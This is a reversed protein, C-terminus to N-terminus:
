LLTTSPCPGTANQCNSSAFKIRSLAPLEDPVKTPRAEAPSKLSVLLVPAAALKEPPNALVSKCSPKCSERETVAHIQGLSILRDVMKKWPLAMWGALRLSKSSNKLASPESRPVTLELLLWALTTKVPAPTTSALVAVWTAKVTARLPSMVKYALPALTALAANTFTARRCVELAVRPAKTSSTASVAKLPIISSTATKSRSNLLLSTMACNTAPSPNSTQPPPVVEAVVEGEVLGVVVAVVDAVVVALVEAVVVALVEGVVDGLVVPTGPVVDGVVVNVEEGVVLAEVVAVVVTDVVMVVVKEDDAVVVGDVVKLM